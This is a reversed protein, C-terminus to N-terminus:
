KFKVTGGMADIAAKKIAASISARKIRYSTWFFPHAPQRETGFEVAFAYDYGHHTTKQGGARVLARRESKSSQEVRISDRLAGSERPANYQMFNALQRAQDFTAKRIPGEARRPLTDLLSQFRKVSQETHRQESLASAFARLDNPM